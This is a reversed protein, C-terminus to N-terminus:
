NIISENNRNTRLERIRELADYYSEKTEDYEGIYECLVTVIENKDISFYSESDSHYYIAKM